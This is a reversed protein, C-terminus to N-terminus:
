SFIFGLPALLVFGTLSQNAPLTKRLHQLVTSIYKEVAKVSIGEMEAIQRYTLGQERHLKFCRLHQPALTQTAINYVQLSDQYILKLMGENSTALPPALEEGVVQLRKKDALMKRIHTAASNRVITFLWAELSQTPDIQERSLWIKIYVEQAIDEAYRNDTLLSSLYRVVRYHTQHFFAQFAQENGQKIDPALENM